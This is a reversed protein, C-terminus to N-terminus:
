PATPLCEHEDLFEYLLPVLPLARLATLGVFAVETADDGPNVIGGVITARFDHIQYDGRVVTGVPERPEVLLGTEERVERVLADPLDEGQEVRGGPITWLGEGPPRGRRVLLLQGETDFVIASVATILM